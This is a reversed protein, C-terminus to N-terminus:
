RSLQLFGTITKTGSAFKIKYFYTGSPLQAGDSSVGNFVRTTNNYNSMSFVEDGWRSFITVTNEKTDPLADIFQIVFQDNKGDGNPSVANYVIVTGVVEITIEKQTCEGAVDCIKISLRDTGSFSFGSYDIRLEENADITATAGSQPPSVIALTSFDLNNDPDSIITTLDLAVQGGIPTTERTPAIVPASDGTCGATALTAVVKTTSSECTGNNISVYFTQTSDLSAITYSSNVAGAIVTGQWNYWRYQGNSAGTANLTAPNGACVSAPTVGPPSPPPTITFVTVSTYLTAAFDGGIKCRYSGAGFNGTTNISLTATSVNSHGGTNTLDDYGGTGSNFIQWQYTINATGSASTSLTQTAGNCVSATAPPQTNIVITPTFTKNEVILLANNGTSYAAAVMVIDPKNDLNIDATTVFQPNNLPLPYNVVTAFSLSGSTSTNRFISFSGPSAQHIVIMEQKGDGDLDQAIIDFGNKSCTFNVPAAFSISGVSSTNRYVSVFSSAINFHTVAIDAKGDGDFDSATLGYPQQGTPVNVAPAFSATTLVKKIGLNQFYSFNNAGANNTAIDPFGDGDLDVAVIGGGASPKPLLLQTGFTSLYSNYLFSGSASQNEYLGINTNAVGAIDIRGDGNFDAVAGYTLGSATTAVGTPSTEFTINGTTSSNRYLYGNTMDTKGDGDIDFATVFNGASFTPAIQTLSGSTIPGAAAQTNRFIKGQTSGDILGIDPKGDDDWDAAVLTNKIGASLPINIVTPFSTPDIVHNTPFTVPLGTFSATLGHATITMADTKGGVPLTFTTSTNSGTTAASKLAGDRIIISPTTKGTLMLDGSLTLTGAATAPSPNAANIVPVPFCQNQFIDLNNPAGGQEGFVIDLKGDGDFDAIVPGVYYSYPSIGAFPTGPMFTNVDIVGTTAQNQFVAMDTSGALVIDPKSDSNIDAIAVKGQIYGIPSTVTIAPGFSSASMVGSTFINKCILLSNTSYGSWALDLKGDNDFDAIGVNHASGGTNMVFPTNFSLTGPISTNQWIHFDADFDGTAVIDLKGDGDLDGTSIAGSINVVGFDFDIFPAFEIDGPTSFNQFITFYAAPGGSSNDWSSLLEPRGDGDLDAAQLPGDVYYAAPIYEVPAFSITGPAGTNRFIAIHASADATGVVIDLKGDGDFDALVVNGKGGTITIPISTKIFSSTSIAGPVQLNQWISVKGIGFESVVLDNWGDGDVDGAAFIVKDQTTADLPLKVKPALSPPIIRGGSDKNNDFQPSFNQMSQGALGTSQDLVTLRGFQAGSPVKVKIQTATASLINAKVGSFFVMNQGTSSFNTGNITITTVNPIGLAPSISTVIPPPPTTQLNLVVNDLSGTYPLGSAGALYKVRIRFITVAAFASKFQDKTPAVGAVSNIHWGTATENLPITYSSWSGANPKLPLQYVITTSGGTIILDGATNDSGFTSQMLDFSLMQNYSASLNGNFKAPANFYFSTASTSSTTFSINGGSPNGGTPNYSVAASAGTSVNFCSWGDDDVAFDSKIQAECTTAVLIALFALSLLRAIM